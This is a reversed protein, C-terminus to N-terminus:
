ARGDTDDAALAALLARKLADLRHELSLEYVGRESEIRCHLAGLTADGEVRLTDRAHDPLADRVAALADPHVRLVAPRASHAVLAARCYDVLRADDRALEGVLRTTAAFTAEVVIAECRQELAAIEAPWAALLAALRASVDALRKTESDLAERASREAARARTEIRKEAERLGAALGEERAADLAARREAELAVRPDPAPTPQSSADTVPDPAFAPDTAARQPRPTLLEGLGVIRAGDGVREFVAKM